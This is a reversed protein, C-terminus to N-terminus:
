RNQPFRKKFFAMDRALGIMSKEILEEMEPVADSDKEGFYQELVAKQEKPGLLYGKKMHKGWWEGCYSEVGDLFRRLRDGSLAGQTAGDSFLYMASLFGKGFKKLAANLMRNGELVAKGM